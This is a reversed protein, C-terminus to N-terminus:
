EFDTIEEVCIPENGSEDIVAIYADTYGDERWSKAMEIAEQKDRTGTGWDTDDHDQMVAYWITRAEPADPFEGQWYAEWIDNVANHDNEISRERIIENLYDAIEEWNEPVGAGFSEVNIWNEM